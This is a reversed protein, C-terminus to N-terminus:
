CASNAPYVCWKPKDLYNVRTSLCDSRSEMEKNQYFILKLTVSKILCTHCHREIDM